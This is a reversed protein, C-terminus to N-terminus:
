EDCVQVRLTSYLRTSIQANCAFRFGDYRIWIFQIANDNIRNTLFHLFEKYIKLIVCDFMSQMKFQLEIFFRGILTDTNAQIQNKRACHPMSDDTTQNCNKLRSMQKGKKKRRELWHHIVRTLTHWTYLTCQVLLWLKVIMCYETRYLYPMTVTGVHQNHATCAHISFRNSQIFSIRDCAATSCILLQNTDESWHIKHFLHHQKDNQKM